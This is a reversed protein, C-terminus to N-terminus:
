DQNFVLLHVGLGVSLPNLLRRRLLLACTSGLDRTYLDCGRAFRGRTVRELFDGSSLLTRTISVGLRSTQSALWALPASPLSRKSRELRLPTMPFPQVSSFMWRGVGVVEVWGIAPLM